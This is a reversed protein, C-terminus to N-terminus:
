WGSDGRGGGTTAQQCANCLRGEPAPPPPAFQSLLYHSGFFHLLHLFFSWRRSISLLFFHMQMGGGGRHPTQCFGRISANRLPRRPLVVEVPTLKCGHEEFVAQLQQCDAWMAMGYATLGGATHHRPDSGAKLLIRVGQVNVHTAAEM